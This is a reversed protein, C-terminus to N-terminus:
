ARLIVILLLFIHHDRQQNEFTEPLSNHASGFLNLYISDHFLSLLPLHLTELFHYSLFLLIIRDHSPFMQFDVAHDDCIEKVLELEEHKFKIENLARRWNIKASVSM